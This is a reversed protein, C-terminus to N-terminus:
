VFAESTSDADNSFGDVGRLPVFRVGGLWRERLGTAIREGLVLRQSERTGVPIVIRGGIRLQAVLSQPAAPAAASVVIADYPGHEPAGVAGRAAALVRVNRVGLGALTAEARRRLADIVEVTVVGQALYALLAAQYGSGTGVELVQETGDLALADIMAAVLSPQSITQGEGIPLASDEYAFRRLRKPVFQERPVTRMAYLIRPNRVSQAIRALLAERPDLPSDGARASVM